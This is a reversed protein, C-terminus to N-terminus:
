YNTILLHICAQNNRNKFNVQYKKDFEKINVKDSPYLEEIFSTKKIILMFNAKCEKLLYDALRQQDNQAFKNNAYTSFETDYPPDLFIFDNKQPKSDNLFAEFDLCYAKTNNFKNNILDSNFYEIKKAFKNNNYGIGGYPVNFKGKENYRFMGSYAFNRVFFYIATSLIKTQELSKDNMLYRCYNYFASKTASEINLIIDQNTSAKVINIKHMRSAKNCVSNYLKRVFVDRDNDNQIFSNIAQMKKANEVVYQITQKKTTDNSYMEIIQTQNDNIFDKIESWIEDFNTLYNLFIQKEKSQLAEYISVLENCKDNIFYKKADINMFCSGGGVFPEYYNDFNSPLYNLIIKLEKDKGGPWKIISSNTSTTKEKKM